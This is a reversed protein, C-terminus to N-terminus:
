KHYTEGNIIKFARYIQETLILRMLQHPFTLDSFSFRFDSLKLLGDDLGLSGGIIFTIHSRGSTFYRALKDAFGESTLRSGKIDLAIIVSGDRLKKLLRDAEKAKIKGKQAESPNEPEQEDEVEVIKLSCFRGLRKSYESIGEKLYQEKLQGVCLITVKMMEGSIHSERQKVERIM